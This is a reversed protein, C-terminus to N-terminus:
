AIAQTDSKPLHASGRRAYLGPKGPVPGFADTAAPPREGDGLLLFGDKELQLALKELVQAATKEDFFNLVNRCLIIDFEGIGDMSDLLNFQQFRILKRIDAKILWKEEMQKFHKLLLNVPLGRQAEFQSYVGERAQNLVENSIDTALIDVKWGSLRAEMEKLVIGVSYPEQGSSSAACWIRLRRKSARKETIYKLVTDRLANFVPLDRFFSTENTTMAEIIDTLLDNDPVGQLAITMTELSSYGWKKAVTSLRSDLLYSKDPTLVLGSKEKLIDRYLDFDTIRM